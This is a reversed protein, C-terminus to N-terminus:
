PKMDVRTMLYDSIWEPLAQLVLFIYKADYGVVYRARPRLDTVAREYASVVKSVDSSCLKDMKASLGATYKQVITLPYQNKLRSNLRTWVQMFRRKNEVINTINTKFFGPEILHVSVGHPKLCRRYADSMGEVAYKSSVYPALGQFSFRGLVSAMNIIRGNASELLPLFRTSIEVLPFFNVNMAARFDETILWPTPGAAGGIGANNIVAWLG